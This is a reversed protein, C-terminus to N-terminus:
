FTTKCILLGTLVTDKNNCIYARVCIYFIDKLMVFFYIPIIGDGPSFYLESTLGALGHICLYKNKLFLTDYYASQNIVAKTQFINILSPIPPFTHMSRQLLKHSFSPVLNSPSPVVPSNTNKLHHPRTPDVSVIFSPKLPILAVEQKTVPPLLPIYICM